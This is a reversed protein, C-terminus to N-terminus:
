AAEKHSLRPLARDDIARSAGLMVLASTDALAAKYGAISRTLMNYFVVAPIAAVLGIATAMLAEAIGPAVVALNTTQTKAIGVFANMIGWVTGFLGVFPGIAGVTALLGLGNGIERAAQTEVRQLRLAIRAKAAEGDGGRPLRAIEDAAERVLAGPVRQQPLADTPAFTTRAVGAMAAVVARKERAIELRKALAAVWVLLTALALIVMVAKVIIDAQLFMGWPSLDHSLGSAVGNM